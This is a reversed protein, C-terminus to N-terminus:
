GCIEPKNFGAVNEVNKRQQKKKKNYCTHEASEYCCFAFTSTKASKTNHNSM